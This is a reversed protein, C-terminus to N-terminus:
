QLITKEDMPKITHNNLVVVEIQEKKLEKAAL